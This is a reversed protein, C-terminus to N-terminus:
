SPKKARLQRVDSTAYSSQSNNSRNRNWWRAALRKTEAAAAANTLLLIAIVDDHGGFGHVLDSLERRKTREPDIVLITSQRLEAVAGAVGDSMATAGLNVIIFEYDGSAGLRDLARDGDLPSRTGDRGGATLLSMNSRAPSVFVAEALPQEGSFVEALGPGQPLGLRRHLNPEPGEGDIVLSRRGG